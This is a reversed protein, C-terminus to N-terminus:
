IVAGLSPVMEEPDVAKARPELVITSIWSQLM